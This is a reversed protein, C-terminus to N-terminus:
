RRQGTLAGFDRVFRPLLRALAARDDDSWDSIAEVITRRRFDHIRALVDEGDLTLALLSRRGDNQDAERRVLAAELALGALRSARPQDVDLEVAVETVTLREGRETATALVDLFEFLADPLGAHSGTRQGSRRSLRALARRRHARRLAVVAAEIAAIQAAKDAM